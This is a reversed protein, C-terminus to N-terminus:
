TTTLTVEHSNSDRGPCWSNSVLGGADGPAKRTGSRAGGLARFRRRVCAATM